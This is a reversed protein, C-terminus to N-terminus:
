KQAVACITKSIDSLEKGCVDDYFTTKEFGASKIEDSLSKMTFLKNWINYCDCNDETIIVYQELYNETEIYHYNRQICVHPKSCWFGADTYYLDQKEPVDSLQNKTFGDLILIGDQKLANMIRNLLVKRENPSLVGFDCYILTILDFENRYEIDLYNEYIYDINKENLYANRNAYEISRKSFDIGTVQFGLQAFLEAYIGPGCGLDLLKKGSTKKFMSRIWEVSKKIFDLQRSAAEINPNLHADLMYKSINEDDWFPATSPEYLQPKDKLYNLINEYM